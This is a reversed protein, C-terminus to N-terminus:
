FHSSAVDDGFEPLVSGLFANVTPVIDSEWFEDPVEYMRLRGSFLTVSVEYGGVVVAIHTLTRVFVDAMKFGEFVVQRENQFGHLRRDIVILATVVDSYLVTSCHDEFPHPVSNFLAHIMIFLLAAIIRLPILFPILCHM